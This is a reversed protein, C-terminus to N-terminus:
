NWALMVAKMETEIPLEANGSKISKSFYHLHMTEKEGEM